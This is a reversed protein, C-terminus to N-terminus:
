DSCIKKSWWNAKEIIEDEDKGVCKRNKMVLRGKIMASDVDSAKLSYVILSHVDYVPTLHPKKLDLIIIDADKGSEISGIKDDLGLAKAASITAMEIVEKANLVTPDKKIAKHLRAAIAMESFIDLDNNSAAGDTGFTVKVGLKLLDAVPAFGSSLKLNSEICHSVYVKSQCLINKEIETLWVCHAAIVNEDLVGLSNLHEVPTKGYKRRVINVEDETESLHTHMRVNYKNAVKKAKLYTEASCTYPAHPAISPTILEDSRWDEIFRKANDVYEDASKATASPFDLVGAGLTARMGFEKTKVAAANEYFYMDNYTTIGALLMEACALAIADAIFENNLWKGEAPWIYEELWRELYIDDALGRFLVMAAHTHTNILGPMILKKDGELVERPRYKQSLQSSQGVELIKGSSVAVASDLLPKENEAMTLIYDGKILFDIDTM